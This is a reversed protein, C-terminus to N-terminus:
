AAAVQLMKALPGGIAIRAGALDVVRAGGITTRIVKTPAGPRWGLTVLRQAVPSDGPRAAVVLPVGLPAESLALAHPSAASSKHM